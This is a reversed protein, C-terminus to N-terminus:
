PILDWHEDDPLAPGGVEVLQFPMQWRGTLVPKVSRTELTLASTGARKQHGQEVLLWGTHPLEAPVTTRCGFHALVERIARLQISERHRRLVLTVADARRDDCGRFSQGEVTAVSPETEADVIVVMPGGGQIQSQAVLLSTAGIEVAVLIDDVILPPRPFRG